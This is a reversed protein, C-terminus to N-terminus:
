FDIYVEDIFALVAGAPSAEASPVAYCVTNYKFHDYVFM